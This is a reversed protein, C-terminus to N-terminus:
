LLMSLLPTFTSLTTPMAKSTGGTDFHGGLQLLAFFSWFADLTASFLLMLVSAHAIAFIAIVVKSRVAMMHSWLM